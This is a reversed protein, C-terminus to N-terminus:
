HCSPGCPRPAQFSLRPCANHGRFKRRPHLGPPQEVFIRPRTLFGRRRAITTLCALSKEGMVVAAGAKVMVLLKRPRELIGVLQEISYAAQINRGQAQQAMFKETKAPTRNYVAIPFGKSELNLALNEGMVALGIVAFSRKKIM